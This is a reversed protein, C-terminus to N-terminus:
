KVAIFLGLINNIRNLDRGLTSNYVWFNFSIISECYTEILWETKNLELVKVLDSKKINTTVKDTGNNEDTLQRISAIFEDAKGNDSTYFAPGLRFMKSDLKLLNQLASENWRVYIQNKRKDNLLIKNFYFYANHNSYYELKPNKMNTVKGWWTNGWIVEKEFLVKQTDQNLIKIKEYDQAKM